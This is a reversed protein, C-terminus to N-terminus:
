TIWQLHQQSFENKREIGTNALTEKITKLQGGGPIQLDPAIDFLPFVVFNREALRPHPLLLEPLNSIEQNYLLLDLDLTRAEWRINRQRGCLNEIRHLEALLLAATLSTNICVVSNLYDPQEGPGIAKSQYIPAATVLQCHSHQHLTQIAQSLQALPDGLNAGLAIYAKNM